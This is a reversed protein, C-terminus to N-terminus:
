HKENANVSRERQRHYRQSQEGRANNADRVENELDHKLCLGKLLRMGTGAERARTFGRAELQQTFKKQSMREEGHVVLWGDYVSYLASSSVTREVGLACKDELFDGILDNEDRYEKTAAKVKAPANLGSESQLYAFCGEVAWALIGSLEARLKDLLQKDQEREPIRVDFPILHV